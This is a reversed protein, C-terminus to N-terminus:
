RFFISVLDRGSEGLTITEYVTDGGMSTRDIQTVWGGFFYYENSWYDYYWDGTPNGYDDYMFDTGIIRTETGDSNPLVLLTSTGPLHNNGDITVNFWQAGGPVAIEHHTYTAM